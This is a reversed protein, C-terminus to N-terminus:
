SIAQQLEFSLDETIMESVNFTPLLFTSFVTGETKAFLVGRATGITLMAIHALFGKPIVLKSKDEKLFHNWSEDIIKFHCGITLKIIHKESQMYEFSSFVGMQKSTQDLRFEFGVEITSEKKADYNEEFLAFQETRIGLLKFGVKNNGKDM